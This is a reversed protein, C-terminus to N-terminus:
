KGITNVRDRGLQSFLFVGLTLITYVEFFSGINETHAVSAWASIHKDYTAIKHLIAGRM